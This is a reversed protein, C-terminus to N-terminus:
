EGQYKAAWYASKAASFDDGMSAWYASLKRQAPRHDTAASRVLMEYSMQKNIEVGFGYEYCLHLMFYAEANGQKAAQRYSDVQRQHIMANAYISVESCINDYRKYCDVAKKYDKKTGIGQAYCQALQYLADRDKDAAKKFLKFAKKENQAVGAGELYCTALAMTAGVDDKARKELLKIDDANKLLSQYYAGEPLGYRTAVAFCEKAKVNDKLERMYVKGMEVIADVNGNRFASNFYGIALQPDKAVSKGYAYSYGLMYSSNANGLESSKVLLNLARANDVERLSGAFYQLATNYMADPHHQAVARDYWVVAKENNKELPTAEAYMLAMQYQADASGAQASKEFMEVAKEMSQEVGYGIFYRVGLEYMSLPDGQSAGGKFCEVAKANDYDVAVGNGYCWGLEGLAVADGMKVNAKITDIRVAYSQRKRCDLLSKEAGPYGLKVAKEYYEKATEFNQRVAIGYSYIQGMASVAHPYDNSALQAIIAVAEEDNAILTDNIANYAHAYQVAYDGNPDFANLACAKEYNLLALGLMVMLVCRKM